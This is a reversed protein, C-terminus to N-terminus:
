RGVERRRWSPWNCFVSLAGDRLRDVVQEGMRSSAELGDAVNITIWTPRCQRYRDDIVRFMVGMQFDTLAGSPPLPDSIALVDPRTYQQLLEKETTDSDFSDRFNAFLKLGNVWGVKLGHAIIAHCMLAAMLHDKGTGAPGFLIVNSCESVRDELNRGYDRIAEVAETQRRQEDPTGHFQYSKLSAHRYRQGIEDLMRMWERARQQREFEDVDFVPKATAAQHQWPIDSDPATSSKPDETEM